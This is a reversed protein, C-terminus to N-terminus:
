KGVKYDSNVVLNYWNGDVWSVCSWSLHGVVVVVCAWSMYWWCVEICRCQRGWEQNGGLEFLCCTHYASVSGRGGGLSCYKYGQPLDVGLIDLSGTIKGDWWVVGCSWSSRWISPMDRVWGFVRSDDWDQLSCTRSLGLLTLIHAWIERGQGWVGLFHDLSVQWRAFYQSPGLGNTEFRGVVWACLRRQM